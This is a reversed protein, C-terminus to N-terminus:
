KKKAEQTIRIVEQVSTDGTIVKELAREQLYLMKSKRCEAKIDRLPAGSLVLQRIDDNLELLEFAGIRGVYGTGQCTQCIVPNGKEDLIPRSRKRYFSKIQDAPLNAKALLQPDPRYPEKCAPCLKRVLVQCLVAQLCALAERTQGGVKFWKALAVFTDSAHMGLFVNKAASVDIIMGASKSDPCSDVMIVDPDRRLATALMDPLAADEKYVNQTVNELDVEPERELTVLVETFADRERLLSYLTSTVGSGSRGSAIILGKGLRAMQRVRLVQDEGLGLEDLNTRVAEQEIRFQMVQGRTSGASTLMLDVRKQGLDAGIRGRQPRRREELNIGGHLKLYDIVGESESLSMGKRDVAVGDIVLRLRSQRGAPALEAESARRWLVDHLLKQALNYTKIEQYTAAQPNPAPIIRGHHGYVKVKTEVEIAPRKRRMFISFLNETTLVKASDLVRSDRFLAYTLLSGGAVVLYLALGLFFYPIVLWLLLGLAGGGLVAISWRVQGIKLNLADKNVWPAAYSWGGFLVLIVIIKALSIYGGTEVAAAPFDIM